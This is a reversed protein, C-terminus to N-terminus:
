VGGIGDILMKDGQQKPNEYLNRFGFGSRDM